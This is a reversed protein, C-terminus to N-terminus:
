GSEWARRLADLEDAKWRLSLPADAVLSNSGHFAGPYVRLEVPVGARQLAQAYEIDEDIFLDLAGVNIYAPPLGSLDTARAPAAYIPTEGGAGNGLYAKWALENAESNWVRTDTIMQSSPTTQRDDIMPYVLLQFCLSPGGNDRAFLATGAALGGGASAGGIAIRSADVGLEDASDTLWTLAGFCDHIAAPYPHEPALRYDVSAIVCALEKAMDACKADDMGVSGLVMGGGHIWCIAPSGAALGAPRYVRVAVDPGGDYGPAQRDEITVDDPLEVPMADFLAAITARAQDIDTLDLFGPPLMGLVAQHMDDLHDTLVLPTTAVNTSM